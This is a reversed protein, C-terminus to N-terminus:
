QKGNASSGFPLEVPEGRIIQEQVQSLTAQLNKMERDLEWIGLKENWESHWERFNELTLRREPRESPSHFLSATAIKFTEDFKPIPLQEFHNQVFSGGNSTDALKAFVGRTKLYSLFQALFITEITTPGAILFADFNTVLPQDMFNVWTHGISVERVGKAAFMLEGHRVVDVKRPNGYYRLKPITMFNSIDGPTALPLANGHPEDYYYGRGVVSVALNPGRRTTFGAKYISDWAGSSYNKLAELERRLFPSWFGADMRNIVSFDFSTPLQYSFHFEEAPDIKAAISGVTKAFRKQIALQKDLMALVLKSVYQATDHDKAIPILIQHLARKDMRPYVGRNLLSWVQEVFFNTRLFAFLYATSLNPAYDTVNCINLIANTTVLNDGSQTVFGIGKRYTRVTSILIDGVRAVSPRDTPLYGGQLARFGVVGTNVDIDGIEAYQYSDTKRAKTIEERLVVLRDLPAFDVSTTPPVFRVYRGPSFCFDSKKVEAAPVELPVRVYRMELNGGSLAKAPNEGSSAGM